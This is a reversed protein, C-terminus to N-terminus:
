NMLGSSQGNSYAPNLQVMPDGAPAPGADRQAEPNCTAPEGNVLGKIIEKMPDPLAQYTEAPNKAFEDIFYQDFLPRLQDPTVKSLDIGDVLQGADVGARKYVAAYPDLLGRNYEYHGIGALKDFQELLAVVETVPAPQVRESLKQRFLFSGDTEAAGRDEVLGASALLEDLVQTHCAAAAKRQDIAVKLASANLGQGTYRHIQSDNPVEVSLQSARKVINNAYAHKYVPEMGDTTFPFREIARNVLTEDHLPYHNQEGISLGYFRDEIPAAEKAIQDPDLYAVENLADGARCAAIKATVMQAVKPHVTGISLGQTVYAESLKRDDETHVPFRRLVAGSASKFVLGFASDPLADVEDQSAIKLEHMDAPLRRAIVHSTDDYFDLLQSALKISM